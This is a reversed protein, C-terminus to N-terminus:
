FERIKSVDRAFWAILVEESVLKTAARERKPLDSVYRGPQNTIAQLGGGEPACRSPFLLSSSSLSLFLPQLTVRSTLSQEINKSYYTCWNQLKSQKEAVIRKQIQQLKRRKMQFYIDNQYTVVSIMDHIM